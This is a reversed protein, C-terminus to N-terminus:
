KGDKARYYKPIWDLRNWWICKKDDEKNAFGWKATSLNELRKEKEKSM